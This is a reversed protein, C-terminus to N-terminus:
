TAAIEALLRATREAAIPPTARRRHCRQRIWWGFRSSEPCPLSAVASLEHVRRSLHAFGYASTTPPAWAPALLDAVLQAFAVKDTAWRTLAPPPALVLLRRHAALTLLQAMRWVDRNGMHPHVYRLGQSRIARVLSRRVYRDTWCAQALRLSGHSTHPTLWRVDGFALSQSVYQDFAVDRPTLTVVIDGAEARMRARQDLYLSGATLLSIDTFDDLVVMPASEIRRVALERYAADERFRAQRRLQNAYEEIRRRVPLNAFLPAQSVIPLM